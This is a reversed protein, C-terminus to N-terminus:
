CSACLARVASQQGTQRSAPPSGESVLELSRDLIVPAPFSLVDLTPLSQIGKRVVARVCM